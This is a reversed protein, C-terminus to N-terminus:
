HIKIGQIICSLSGRGEGKKETATDSLVTGDTEIVNTRSHRTKGNQDWILTRHRPNSSTIIEIFSAAQSM